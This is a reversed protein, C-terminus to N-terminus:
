GSIRKEIQRAIMRTTAPLSQLFAGVQQQLVEGCEKCEKAHNIFEEIPIHDQLAAEAFLAKADDCCHFYSFMFPPQGM